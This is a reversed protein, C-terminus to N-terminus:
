DEWVLNTVKESSGVDRASRTAAGSPVALVAGLGVDEVWQHHHRPEVVPERLDVGKGVAFAAHRSGEDGPVQHPM